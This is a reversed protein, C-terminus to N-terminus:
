KKAIMRDVLTRFDVGTVSAVNELISKMEVVAITVAVVRAVFGLEPTITDFVYGALIALQYLLGKAVTRKMGSSTIKEERKAAAYIGTIFDILVLAGLAFILTHIPAFFGVLSLVAAKMWVYLVTDSM